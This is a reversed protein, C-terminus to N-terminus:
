PYAIAEVEMIPCKLLMLNDSALVNPSYFEAELDSLM